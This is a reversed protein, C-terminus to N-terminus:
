VLVAEKCGIPLLQYLEAAICTINKEVLHGIDGSSGLTVGFIPAFSSAILKLVNSSKGKIYILWAKPPSRSASL